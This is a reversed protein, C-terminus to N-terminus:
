DNCARGADPTVEDMLDDWAAIVRDVTIASMADRYREDREWGLNLYGDPVIPSVVSRSPAGLPGWRVVPTPGNLAVVPIEVAAALHMVGTNVSIVGSAFRLWVLTEAPTAGAVSTARIGADRWETCLADNPAVDGPGGTLVVDYGRANLAEAVARWRDVPWSREEFNAGGPWLHLVVYQGAHPRVAAADPRLSPESTSEIGAGAILRRYNDIEHGVDHDVVVDYAYHRHQGPTRMGVTCQADSLVTLLTEFRPWAGFDVVVDCHEARVMKVAGPINRVPLTVVTDVDDLLKAFGANNASVFLVIRADPRAKRIDHIVASLLVLDGIGVTKVLGITQWDAPVARTGRVRRAAGLTAIVPIGAYRDLFKLRANGRDAQLQAPQSM